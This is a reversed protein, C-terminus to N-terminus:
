AAKKRREIDAQLVALEREFRELRRRLDDLPDAPAHDAKRDAAQEALWEEGRATDARDAPDDDPFASM